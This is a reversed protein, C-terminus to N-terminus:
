DWRRIHWNDHIEWVGSIGYVRSINRYFIAQYQVCSLSNWLLMGALNWVWSILIALNNLINYSKVYFKLVFEKKTWIHIEYMM